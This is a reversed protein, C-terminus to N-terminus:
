RSLPVNGSEIAGNLHLNPAPNQGMLHVLTDSMTWVGWVFLFLSAAGGFIAATQFITSITRYRPTIPGDKVYPHEWTRIYSSSLNAHYLNTLYAFLMSVLGAAVGFAFWILSGAASSLEPVSVKEKGAINGLFALVAIVAAGNALIVTKIAETGSKVAADNHLKGQDAYADHQREAERRTNEDIM